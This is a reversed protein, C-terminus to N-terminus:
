RWGVGTTGMWCLGSGGGSRRRGWGGTMMTVTKTPPGGDVGRILFSLVWWCCIFMCWYVLIYVCAIFVFTFSWFPPSLSTLRHLFRLSHSIQLMIERISGISLLHHICHHGTIVDGASTRHRRIQLHHQHHNLPLTLTATATISLPM